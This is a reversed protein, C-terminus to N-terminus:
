SSRSLRHRRQVAPRRRAAAPGREGCRRWASTPSATRRADILEAAGPVPRISRSSRSARPCAPTPARGALEVSARAPRSGCRAATPSASATATTRTSACGRAADRARALSPTASSSGIRRRLAHPRGRPASRVRRAPVSPVAEAAPTWRFLEPVRSRRPTPPPETTAPTLTPAPAPRTPRPRLGEIAAGDADVPEALIPEWSGGTPSSRSGTGSCSRTATSPSRCCSVTAPGACSRARRRGRVRARGPRDRRHGRRRDRPRLRVGLRLALEAAIRWDDMATGDPAVKRGVRQVRGELNTVRARSRAGCRRPSCSTPGRRPTPRPVRRGRDRRRCTRLAASRSRATPSTPSRTPASCCSCTPDQRRGRGRLIGAADLGRREPVAGWADAFWERGADLTVRGPLFGPALGVDLAGHVNGRACRALPVARRPVAALTPRRTCPRTPRSPSRRRPRARRRGSGDRDALAGASTTSRLRRGTTEGRSRVRRAAGGDRGAEGPVTASCRRDRVAHARPRSRSLDVLPVGLEVAARRVRLYLVPLEEKLDPGLLVIATPGTATPSRPARAPRARGRGAPRRRAARRRQRHRDRGERLAGVRVRGREHRARRRAGRDREARPRELVDRLADAAADLAEPWSVEGLEGDRRVCAARRVRASPTCGSSATAARTACGATTSRSPTSASCACSGTRRRSCRAAASCRARRARRRSRRSTGRGRRSATSGRPSRASRASRCPTARSTRTSRSRRPLQPGAHPRRPRRLRDAPRRRDRRRLAHLARVPHLARPRAARPRQDPDAERLPAEGRRLAVRGPRVRADPGAAPVRRRPRVGPLRAPPQRAPVRARRGPDTKVADPEAHARGHRRRRADHVRAPLGRVGEVEVLCMRCMGVPKM